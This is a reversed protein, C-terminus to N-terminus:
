VLPGLRPDISAVAEPDPEPAPPDTAAAPAQPPLRPDMTLPTTCPSLLPDIEPTNAAAVSALLPDNGPGLGKDAPASWALRVETEEVVALVVVPAPLLVPGLEM